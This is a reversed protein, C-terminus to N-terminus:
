LLAAITVVAIGWIVILVPLILMQITADRPALLGTNTMIGKQGFEGMTMARQKTEPKIRVWLSPVGFGGVVFVVFIAMPVILGPSYFGAFMIGLFALYLGVTAGYLATPMEFSRDVQHASDSSAQPATLITAKKALQVTDIHKSM